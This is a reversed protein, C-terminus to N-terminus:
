RQAQGAIPDQVYSVADKLVRVFLPRHCGDDLSSPHVKSVKYRYQNHASPGRFPAPKWVFGAATLDALLSQDSTFFTTSDSKICLANKLPKHGVALSDYPHETEDLRVAVQLDEALRRFAEVLAYNAKETRDLM